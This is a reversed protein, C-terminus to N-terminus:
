QIAKPIMNPPHKTPAIPIINVPFGGNREIVCNDLLKFIHAITAAIPPVKSVISLKSLPNSLSAHISTM